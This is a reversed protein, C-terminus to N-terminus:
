EYDSKLVDESSITVDSNFSWEVSRVGVGGATKRLVPQRIPRMPFGPFGWKYFCHAPDMNFTLPARFFIPDIFGRFCAGAPLTAKIFCLGRPFTHVHVSPWIGDMWCGRKVNLQMSILMRVRVLSVQGLYCGYLFVVHHVLYKWWFLFIKM